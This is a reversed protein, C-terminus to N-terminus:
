RKRKAPAASAAGPPRDPHAGHEAGRGQSAGVARRGAFLGALAARTSESGAAGSSTREAFSFYDCFNGIDKDVQREAQMERCQNHYGADYFGCNRCCHLDSGCALCAARRGVREVAGVERGCRHCAHSM